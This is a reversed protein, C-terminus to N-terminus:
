LLQKTVVKPQTPSYMKRRPQCSSVSVAKINEGFPSPKFFGHAWHQKRQLVDVAAFDKGPANAQIFFLWSLATASKPFLLTRVRACPLGFEVAFGMCLDKAPLMNIRDRGGIKVPPYNAILLREAM